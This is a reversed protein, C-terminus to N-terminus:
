ELPIDAWQENGNIEDAEEADEALEERMGDRRRDEINAYGGFEIEPLAENLIAAEYLERGVKVNILDAFKEATVEDTGIVWCAHDRFREGIFQDLQKMENKNKTKPEDNRFRLFMNNFKILRPTEPNTTKYTLWYRLGLFSFAASIEEYNNLNKDLFQILLRENEKFIAVARDELWEPLNEPDFRLLGGTLFRTNEAARDLVEKQFMEARKVQDQFNKKNNQLRNIIQEPLQSWPTVMNSSDPNMVIFTPSENPSFPNAYHVDFDQWSLLEEEGIEFGAGTAAFQCRATTLEEIRNIYLKLQEHVMYKLMFATQEEQSSETKVYIFENLINGTESKLKLNRMTKRIRAIADRPNTLNGKPVPTNEPTQEARIIQQSM